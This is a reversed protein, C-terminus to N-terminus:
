FGKRKWSAYLNKYQEEIPPVIAAIYTLKKKVKSWGHNVGKPVFIATGSKVVRRKQGLIVTAEGDTVYYVLESGSHSHAPMSSGPVITVVTLMINESKANTPTIIPYSTIGKTIVPKTKGLNVISM